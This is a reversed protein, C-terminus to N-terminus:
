RAGAFGAALVAPDRALLRAASQGRWYAFSREGDTLEILYLGVTRDPIRAVRSTGLGADRLFGLMRDSIADTGVATLYDM